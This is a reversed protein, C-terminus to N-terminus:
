NCCFNSHPCNWAPVNPLDVNQTTKIVETLVSGNTGIKVTGAVDLVAIPTTTKIGLAGGSTLRMRELSGTAFGITNALPRHFGCGGGGDDVGNTSFFGIAPRAATNGQEALIRAGGNIPSQLRNNTVTAAAGIHTEGTSKIIINPNNNTRFQLDVLDTTGLFNTGAVTGANGTLLWGNSNANAPRWTLNTRIFTRSENTSITMGAFNANNHDENAIVLLQGENATVSYIINNTQAGALLTIRATSTQINIDPAAASFTSPNMILANDTRINGAAHLKQAPLSTGVGVNQAYVQGTLVIITLITSLLNM